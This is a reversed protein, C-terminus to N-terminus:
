AQWCYGLMVTKQSVEDVLQHFCASVLLWVDHLAQLTKQLLPSLISSAAPDLVVCSSRCLLSVQAWATKCLSLVLWLVRIPRIPQVQAGRSMQLLHFRTRWTPERVGNGPNPHRPSRVQRGWHSLICKVRSWSYLFMKIHKETEKATLFHKLVPLNTWHTFNSAVLGSLRFKIGLFWITPYFQDRDGSRWVHAPVNGEMPVWTSARDKEWLYIKIHKLLFHEM